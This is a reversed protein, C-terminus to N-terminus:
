PGEVSTLSTDVPILFALLSWTSAHYNRVTIGARLRRWLRENQRLSAGRVMEERPGASASLEEHTLHPFGKKERWIAADARIVDESSDIAGGAACLDFWYYAESDSQPEGSAGTTDCALISTRRGPMDKNQQRRAGGPPLRSM